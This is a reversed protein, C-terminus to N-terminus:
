SVATKETPSVGAGPLRRLLGHITGSLHQERGVSYLLEGLALRMVDREAPDLTLTVPQRRVEGAAKTPEEERGITLGAMTDPRVLLVPVTALSLVVTAASGIMLRALGGLGHTAMVIVDTGAETAVEAITAPVQGIATRVEVQQSQARLGAAVGDLMERAAMTRFEPDLETFSYGNGFLPNIPEVVHLLILEIGFGGRLRMAAAVGQKSFESGDLPVLLRLPAGPEAPWEGHCGGPIVLVPVDTSRAVRDTVSGYFWRGIEGRSHTAMLILDPHHEQTAALISDAPDDSYTQSAAPVGQAQIEMAIGALEEEVEKMPYTGGTGGAAHTSRVLVVSGGAAKALRVAYPLARRSLPSGDLPVLITTFM